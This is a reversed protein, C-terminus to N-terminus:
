ERFYLYLPLAFSPGVLLTAPLYIWWNKAGRQRSDTYSFILFVIATLIVDVAFFTSIPTAFLQSFFLRLDLGNQALFQIFFLYPLVLGLVAFILFLRKM